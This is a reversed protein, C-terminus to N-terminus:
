AVDLGTWDVRIVESLLHNKYRPPILSFHGIWFTDKWDFGCRKAIGLSKKNRLDIFLTIRYPFCYHKMKDCIAKVAETMYGNGECKKHLFYALYLETGGQYNDRNPNLEIIGLFQKNYKCTIGYYLHNEYYRGYYRDLEPNAQKLWCRIDKRTLSENRYPMYWQIGKEKLLKWFKPCDKQTMKQLSLRRTEIKKGFIHRLTQHM